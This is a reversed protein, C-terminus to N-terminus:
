WTRRSQIRKGAKVGAHSGSMVVATFEDELTPDLRSFVSVWVGTLSGSSFGDDWSFASAGGAKTNHTGSYAEEASKSEENRLHETM